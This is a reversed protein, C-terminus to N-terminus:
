RGSHSHNTPYILTQCPPLISHNPPLFHRRKLPFLMNLLQSVTNPCQKPTSRRAKQSTHCFCLIHQPLLLNNHLFLLYLYHIFMNIVDSPTQVKCELQHTINFPWPNIYLMFMLFIAAFCWLVEIIFPSWQKEREAKLFLLPWILCQLHSNREHLLTQSIRGQLKNHCKM